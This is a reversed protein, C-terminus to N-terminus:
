WLGARGFLDHMKKLVEDNIEEPCQGLEASFNQITELRAYVADEADAHETAFRPTHQKRDSQKQFRLQIEDYGKSAGWLRMRQFLGMNGDKGFTKEVTHTLRITTPHVKAEEDFGEEPRGILEIRSLRGGALDRRLSASLPQSAVLRPHYRAPRGTDPDIWSLHSDQCSKRVLTNLFQITSLRGLGPMRELAAKVAEAKAQGPRIAVALHAAHAVSEDIGKGAQRIAGSRVNMLAPDSAMADGHHLLMIYTGDQGSSTRAIRMLNAESAGAQQDEGEEDDESGLGEAVRSAAGGEAFIKEIAAFFDAVSWTPAGAPISEVRLHLLLIQREHASVAM